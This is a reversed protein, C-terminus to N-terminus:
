SRLRSAIVAGTQIMAINRLPPWGSPAIHSSENENM